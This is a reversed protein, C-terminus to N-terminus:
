TAIEEILNLLLERNFISEKKKHQLLILTKQLNKKVSLKIIERRFDKFIFIKNCQFCLFKEIVQADIRKMFTEVEFALRRVIM